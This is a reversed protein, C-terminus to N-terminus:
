LQGTKIKIFVRNLFHFAALPKDRIDFELCNRRKEAHCCVFKQFFDVVM